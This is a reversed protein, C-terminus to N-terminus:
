IWFSRVQAFNRADKEAASLLPEIEGRERGSVIGLAFAQRRRKASPKGAVLKPALKQHVKIDNLAGLRDQLDTLRTKFDLLRKKAARGAFLHGFFDTAYRLKKVAIRLTHRQQSDLRRFMKAKKIARKTRRALIDAAFREIPQHKYRRARKAWDGTELWQLTDLLLSRYRRSEVAARARGFAADRRSTLGGVLERIGRKPPAARRLPEIENRVYVDLDRAPALEGTLWKLESKIRETGQDGFLKSFLSIAARLRRLGVRMRHVGESDSRRVAAENNAIHRLVSRGVIRFADIPSMGRRLLIKEARGPQVPADEILDYGRESKSKLSLTAPALKGMERALKFLDGAKGRKLELEIESIRTSQRGACVEGEDLAMEIRSGNKSIPVSVRHIRTEFVPKLRRKLKKTLLPALPTGRAERLNPVAGKIEHEWEGRRFSGNSGGSKITQFFKDGHRRVRLTVGNRALKHKPTDFYVSVLDEEEPPKGHLTRAAKLKRLERPLVQFKLEIEKGM